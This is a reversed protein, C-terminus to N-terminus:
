LSEQAPPVVEEKEKSKSPDMNTEEPLCSPDSSPHNRLARRFCSEGAQNFASGQPIPPLLSLHPNTPLRGARQLTQPCCFLSTPRESLTSTRPRPPLLHPFSDQRQRQSSTRRRTKMTRVGSGWGWGLDPSQAARM